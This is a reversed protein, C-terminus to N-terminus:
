RSTTRGGACRADLKGVLMATEQEAEAQDTLVHIKEVAYVKLGFHGPDDEGKFSALAEM